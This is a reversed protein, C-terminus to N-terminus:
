LDRHAALERAREIAVIGLQEGTTDDFLRVSPIPIHDNVRRDRFAIPAADRYIYFVPCRNGSGPKPHQAKLALASPSPRVQRDQKAAGTIPTPRQIYCARPVGLGAAIEPHMVPM